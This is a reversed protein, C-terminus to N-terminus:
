PVVSVSLLMLVINTKDLALSMKPNLQEKHIYITEKANVRLTAHITLKRAVSSLNMCALKKGQNWAGSCDM